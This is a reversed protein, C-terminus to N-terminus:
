DLGDDLRLISTRFKSFFLASENKEFHTLNPVFDVSKLKKKIHTIQNQGSGSLFLFSIFNLQTFLTRVDVNNQHQGKTIKIARSFLYRRFLFPVKNKIQYLSYNKRLTKIATPFSFPLSFCHYM